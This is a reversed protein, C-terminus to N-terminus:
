PCGHASASERLRRRRGQQVTGIASLSPSSTSNRQLLCRPRTRSRRAPWSVVAMRRVRHFGRWGQAGAHRASRSEGCPGRRKRLLAAPCGAPRAPPAPSSAGALPIPRACASSSSAPRSGSSKRGISLCPDEVPDCDDRFDFASSAAATSASEGGCPQQHTARVPMWGRNRSRDNGTRTSGSPVSKGAKSLAMMGPSKGRASTAAKEISSAVVVSISSAKETVGRSAAAPPDANM